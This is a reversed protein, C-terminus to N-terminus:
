NQQQPEKLVKWQYERQDDFLQLRSSKNTDATNRLPIGRIMIMLKWSIMMSGYNSPKHTVLIERMVLKHLLLQLVNPAAPRRLNQRSPITRLQKLKGFSILISRRMARLKSQHRKSCVIGRFAEGIKGERVERSENSVHQLFFFFQTLWLRM